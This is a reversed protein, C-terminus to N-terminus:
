EEEEKELGGGTYDEGIIAIHRERVSPSAYSRLLAFNQHLNADLIEKMNSVTWAKDFYCGGNHELGWCTDVFAVPTLAGTEYQWLINAINAWPKGGFANSKFRPFTIQAWRLAQSGHTKRFFKWAKWAEHRGQPIKGTNLAMALPLPCKSGSKLMNAAHRLEGGVAMDTYRIFQPLLWDMLEQFRGEDEEDINLDMLLYFDAATRKLNMDPDLQWHGWRVDHSGPTWEWKYNGEETGHEPVSQVLAGSTTTSVNADTNQTFSVPM